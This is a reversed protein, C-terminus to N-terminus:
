KAPELAELAIEAVDMVATKGGAQQASDQLCAICFPCATSLVEAKAEGAQEMRLDGFREGAETELFMRGGGGGCCLGHEKSEAMESLELDHIASLVKRPAEYEGNKRGLYCPDSFSVRKPFRGKLELKHDAILEALVQTYHLARFDDSPKPTHNVFMDWCHPSVAVLTKVGKEAFLQSNKKAIDAAYEKHGMAMASEGCCPEADGLVGFKVGGARLLKVVARAVKQIRRDYSATCGVYLLMDHKASFTELKLDKAWNMRESPPLCYPNGDQHIGWLVPSLGDPTSRKKWSLSRLGQLVKAIPVGRPCSEECASCSTCLWLGNPDRVGIQAERIMMRISPRDKKVRGWPCAASCTGCQYCPWADRNTAKLVEEVADDDLTVPELSTKAPAEHEETCTCGCGCDKEESM